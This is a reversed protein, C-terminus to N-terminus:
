ATTLESSTGSFIYVLVALVALPPYRNVFFVVKSTWKANPNAWITEVEDPLTLVHDFVVVVFPVVSFYRLGSFVQLVDLIDQSPSSM